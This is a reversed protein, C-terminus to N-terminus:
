YGTFCHQPNVNPDENNSKEDRHIEKGSSRANACYELWELFPDM